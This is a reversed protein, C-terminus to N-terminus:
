EGWLMLLLHVASWSFNAVKLGRGNRPDYNERIPVPSDKFGEIRDFIQRRFKDAEKSFGYNELGKLGFYVQDLWVPGRWYGSMFEPNDASVTPLPVYTAFKSTDTIVQLVQKAQKQNAAGAWLPIWGESGQVKLLSKDKLYIDYFFGTDDDFMYERIMEGLEDAKEKFSFSIKNDGIINNLRALIIKEAYLYSNLDVSEQNLSWGGEKNKVIGCRDFRVGDDM